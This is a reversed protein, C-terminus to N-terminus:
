GTWYYAMISFDILTIKGDANLRASEIEKFTTSLTRKYWFAAISFDVLNVKGDCNLDAKGCAGTKPVTTTGVKFAVTKGYSSVQGDKSARSKADHGGPDLPATDFNYFYAGNKDAPATAFHETESNVLITIAANPTSQGFIGVVEGRKVQTKDVDITPAIFIGSVNATANSQIYIPFTFPASKVGKADEAIVSFNYNGTSLDYISASFNADQGAITSVVIQGDKLISIKSLPYARGSFIVNAISTVGGGGGGGGPPTVVVPPTVPTTAPVERLPVGYQIKFTLSTSSSVIPDVAGIISYNSSTADFMAPAFTSQTNQYNTSSQDFAIAFSGALLSFIMLFSLIFARRM